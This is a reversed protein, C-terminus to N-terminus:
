FGSGSSASGIGGAHADRPARGEEAGRAPDAARPADVALREEAGRDARQSWVTRILQALDDRRRAPACRVGCTPAPAARLPVDAVRRRRDAPQPRLGRLVAATTSAIIGFTTGDPLRLSRGPGLRPRRAAAIPGYHAELRALMERSPSSRTAADLAHRRRRGHIRHVAGRRRRQPRVRDSRVLEDDNVGRM